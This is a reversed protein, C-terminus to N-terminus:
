NIVIVILVIEIQKIKLFYVFNKNLKVYRVHLEIKYPRIQLLGAMFLIHLPM